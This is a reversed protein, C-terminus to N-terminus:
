LKFRQILQEFRESTEALARAEDVFGDMTKEVHSMSQNVHSVSASSEQSVAAVAAISEKMQLGIASVEHLRLSLENMNERIEQAEHNISILADGTHTIQKVGSQVQERNLLLAKDVTESGLNVGTLMATMEKASESTQISLKRISEAIISFGKGADGVRASEITANLALLNTQSAIHDVMEVLRSLDNLQLKFRGMKNRSDLVSSEIQRMNEQSRAILVKGKETLESANLAKQLVTSLMKIELELRNMFEETFKAIHSANRAQNEFGEALQNTTNTMEKSEHSVSRTSCILAQGSNKTMEAAQVMTQIMELLNRKMKEISDAIMGLEDMNHIIQGHNRLDGCAIKETSDIVRKFSAKIQKSIRWTIWASILISLIVSIALFLMSGKVQKQVNQMAQQEENIVSTRLRNVLELTRVQIQNQEKHIQMLKEKDNMLVAPVFESQFLNFTRADESMIQSFWKKQEETKMYPKLKKEASTLKLQDQSYLKVARDGPELLYDVVRSDKSRFLSGIETIQAAREGAMRADEARQMTHYLLVTSTVASILMILLVIWLGVSFKMSITLHRWSAKRRFINKM